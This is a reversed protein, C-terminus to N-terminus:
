REAWASAQLMSPFTLSGDPHSSQLLVMDQGYLEIGTTGVKAAKRRKMASEYVSWLQANRAAGRTGAGTIGVKPSGTSRLYDAAQKIEAAAEKFNLNTM